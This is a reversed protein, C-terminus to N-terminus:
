RTWSTLTAHVLRGSGASSPGASVRFLRIQLGGDLKPFRAAFRRPERRLERRLRTSPVFGSAKIEARMHVSGTVAKM